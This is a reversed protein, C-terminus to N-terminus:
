PRCLGWKSVPGGGVKALDTICEDSLASGSSAASFNGDPAKGAIRTRQRKEGISEDDTLVPALLAAIQPNSSALVDGNDDSTDSSVDIRALPGNRPPTGLCVIDDEEPALLRDYLWQYEQRHARPIPSEAANIHKQKFNCLQSMLGRVKYSSDEIVNEPLDTNNLAVWKKFHELFDLHLITRYGTVKFLATVAPLLKVGKEWSPTLKFKIKDYDLFTVVRKGETNKTVQRANLPFLDFAAHASQEDIQVAGRKSNTTM